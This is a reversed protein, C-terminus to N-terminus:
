LIVDPLNAVIYEKLFKEQDEEPLKVLDEVILKVLDEVLLKVLPSEVINEEQLCKKKNIILLYYNIFIKKFVFAVNRLLKL